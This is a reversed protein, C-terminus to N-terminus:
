LAVYILVSSSKNEFGPHAEKNKMYSSKLVQVPFDSFNLTLADCISQFFALVLFVHPVPVAQGKRGLHMRM